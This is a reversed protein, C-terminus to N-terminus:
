VIQCHQVKALAITANWEACKNNDLLYNGVPLFFQGVLKAKPFADRCHELQKCSFTSAFDGGLSCQLM